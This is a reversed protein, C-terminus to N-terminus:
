PQGAFSGEGLGVPLVAGAGLGLREPEV